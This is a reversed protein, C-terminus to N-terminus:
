LCRASSVALEMDPKRFLFKRICAGPDENTGTYWKVKELRSRCNEAMM